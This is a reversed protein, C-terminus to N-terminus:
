PLQLCPLEASYNNGHSIGSKQMDIFQLPIIGSAVYFPGQSCYFAPEAEQYLHQLQVCLPMMIWCTNIQLTCLCLSLMSKVAKTPFHSNNAGRSRSLFGMSAILYTCIRLMGCKLVYLVATAAARTGWWVRQKGPFSSESTVSSALCEAGAICQLVVM